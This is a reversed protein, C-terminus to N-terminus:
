RSYVDSSSRTAGPGPATFGSGIEGETKGIDQVSGWQVYRIPIDSNALAWNMYDLNADVVAQARNHPTDASWSNRVDEPITEFLEVGSITRECYEPPNDVCSEDVKAYTSQTYKGHFDSVHWIKATVTVIEDDTREELVDQANKEITATSITQAVILLVLISVSEFGYM